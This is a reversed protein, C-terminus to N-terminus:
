FMESTLVHTDLNCQGTSFALLAVVVHGLFLLIMRVSHFGALVASEALLVGHM